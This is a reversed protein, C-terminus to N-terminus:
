SVMRALHNKTTPELLAINESIYRLILGDRHRDEPVHWTTRYNTPHMGSLQHRKLEVSGSEVKRLDTALSFSNLSVMAMLVQLVLLKVLVFMLSLNKVALVETKTACASDEISLVVEKQNVGTSTKRKLPSLTWGDNRGLRMQKAAIELQRSQNGLPIVTSSEIGCSDWRVQPYDFGIFKGEKQCPKWSQWWSM